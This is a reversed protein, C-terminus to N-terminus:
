RLYDMKVNRAKDKLGVQNRDQLLMGTRKDKQMLLAWSTGYMAILNLLHRTEEDSWPKRSQVRQPKRQLNKREKAAANAFRFDDLDPSLSPEDTLRGDRGTEQQQSAELSSRQRISPQTIPRKFAPKAGRKTAIDIPQPQQTQFEEGASLSEPQSFQSEFSIRSANPQPDTYRPKQGSAPLASTQPPNEMNEKNSEEQQLMTRNAIDLGIERVMTLTMRDDEMGIPEIRDDEQPRWSDERSFVAEQQNGSDAAAPSPVRAENATNELISARNSSEATSTVQIDPGPDQTVQLSRRNAALRAKRDLEIQKM